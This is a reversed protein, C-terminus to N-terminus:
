PCSRALRFGIHGYKTDASEEYRSASRNERNSQSGGRLVYSFGKTAGTPDIQSEASYKGYIDQCWEWVNGSMDYLGWANPKKLGVKQHKPAVYDKIQTYNPDDGWYFRTTTGARCAYEWEAETPLRFTGQGLQNLKQIFLQCDNWSVTEVPLNGNGRYYSPNNEMVAKWQAQTAEYKGIYFPQSITVQHQPGEDISMKNSNAEKQMAAIDSESSGMMYIGAPILVMDLSKDDGGLPLPITIALPANNTPPVTEGPKVSIQIPDNEDGDLFRTNYYKDPNLSFIEYTDLYAILNETKSTNIVQIVPLISTMGPQCFTSLRRYRGVFYSGNVTNTATFTNVGLDVTGIIVSVEPKDTRVSCRVLGPGTLEIIPLTFLAGEGPKADIRIGKGYTAGIFANDSPIDTFSVAPLPYAGFGAGVVQIKNATATDGSFDFVTKYEETFGTHFLIITWLLLAYIRHCM